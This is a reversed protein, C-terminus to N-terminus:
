NASCGAPIRLGSPPKTKKKQIQISTIWSATAPNSRLNAYVSHEARRLASLEAATSQAVKLGAHCLIGLLQQDRERLGIFSQRTMEAAAKTLASRQAPTLAEFATENVGVSGVYPFFVLNTTLYKAATYYGNTFVYPLSSVAGDVAGTKLATYLDSGSAIAESKAGLAALISDTLPSNSPVRLRAGQFDRLAHFPRQAGLPVHLDVAALGLTRVSAARTGALMGRGIPGILVKRLLAYNTILFPAQLASFTSLGVPDWARTPIWGMAVSNQEVEHIVRPEGDATQHEAFQIAIELSGGSLKEVSRAFSVAPKPVSGTDAV